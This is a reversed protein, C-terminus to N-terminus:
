RLLIVRCPAGKKAPEAFPARITLCDSQAFVRTMSSDQRDFPLAILDGDPGREIKSRLYDERRDNAPLDKGLVATRELDPSAQGRLRAILARLFLHSCVLSSVPNGPFGLVHLHELRGYMLPKGPRMAIQWFDLEMGRAVLTEQVLDHDGVSAGGLTVLIDAGAQLTRDIADEISARTDVAIGLDLATAGDAQAIAAVGFGNSAIIQDDKPDSGPPVLEDGTALIAVHPRRRVTLSPCNMSAAVTLRGADLTDGSQLVVDGAAFDLGEPRVYVGKSAGQNIRVRDPALTETNEQIVITDAGDPLPAGTFIRVTEGSGVSGEFRHGAPAQGIITLEVPTTEVDAARVAYGDMASASFPPQSRRAVLDEALIRGAADALRVSEREEITEANALIRNRADEVSVLRM